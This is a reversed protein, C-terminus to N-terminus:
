LLLAEPIQLQSEVSYLTHGVLPPTKMKLNELM